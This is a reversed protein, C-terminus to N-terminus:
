AEPRVRMLVKGYEVAEGNKVLIEVVEGKVGARVTHMLKMVEVIGVVTEEVVKSGLEVFPPEGPKPAIYLIGLLPATIELLGPESPPKAEPQLSSNPPAAPTPQPDPVQPVASGRQLKLKVGDMELTLEDFTSEELIRMIEAVDKATLTM